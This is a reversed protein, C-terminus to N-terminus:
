KCKKSLAKAMIGPMSTHHKPAKKPLKKGKSVENWEHVNVGEKELKEKNANFYKEQNESKYPM